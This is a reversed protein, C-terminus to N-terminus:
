RTQLLRIVLKNNPWILAPLLVVPKKLLEMMLRIRKIIRLHVKKSSHMDDSDQSKVKFSATPYSGLISASGNGSPVSICDSSQVDDSSNNQEVTIEKEVV